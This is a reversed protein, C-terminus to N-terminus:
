PLPISGIQILSFSGHILHFITEGLSNTYSLHVRGLFCPSIDLPGGLDFTSGGEMKNDNNV